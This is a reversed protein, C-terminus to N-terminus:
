NTKRPEFFSMMHDIFAAAKKLKIDSQVLQTVGLALIANVFEQRTLPEQHVLKYQLCSEAYMGEMMIATTITTWQM